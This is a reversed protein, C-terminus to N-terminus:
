LSMGSVLKVRVMELGSTTIFRRRCCFSSLLICSNRLESPRGSEPAARPGGGCGGQARLLSPWPEGKATWHTFRVSAAEPPLITKVRGSAWVNKIRKKLDTSPFLTYNFLSPTGKAATARSTGKDREAAMGVGFGPNKYLRLPMKGVERCVCTRAHVPIYVPTCVPEYVCTCVPACMCLYM